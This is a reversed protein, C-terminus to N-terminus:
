ILTIHLKFIIKTASDKKGEFVRKEARWFISHLSTKNTNKTILNMHKNAQQVALMLFVLDVFYNFASSTLTFFYLGDM